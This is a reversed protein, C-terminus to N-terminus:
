LTSIAQFQSNPLIEHSFSFRARRRRGPHAPPPLLFGLSRIQQTQPGHSWCLFYTWHLVGISEGSVVILRPGIFFFFFGLAMALLLGPLALEPEDASLRVAHIWGRGAL